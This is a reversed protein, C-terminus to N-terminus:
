KGGNMNDMDRWKLPGLAVVKRGTGDMKTEIYRIALHDAHFNDYVKNRLQVRTNVEIQTACPLWTLAHGGPMVHVCIGAALSAAGYHFRVYQPSCRQVATVPHCFWRIRAAGEKSSVAPGLCGQSHRGPRPSCAGAGGSGQM